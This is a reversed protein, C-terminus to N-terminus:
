KIIFLLMGVFWQLALKNTALSYEGNSCSKFAGTREVILNSICWTLNM